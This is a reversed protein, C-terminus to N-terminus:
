ARLYKFKRKLKSFVMEIPNFDPSYPVNFIFEIDLEVAKEQVVQSRHVALNDLFLTLAELPYMDRLEQMYACFKESNVSRKFLKWHEVGGELSVGMILALTPENLKHQDVTINDHKCSYETRTVTARTFMTEDAYIM